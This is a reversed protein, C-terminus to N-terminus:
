EVGVHEIRSLCRHCCMRPVPKDVNLNHDVIDCREVFGSRVFMLLVGLRDRGIGNAYGWYEDKPNDEHLVADGTGILAERLSDHQLFKAVLCRLMVREKIDDWGERIKVRYGAMKADFPKVIARIWEREENDLTKQAQYYHETTRWVKGDLTIPARHFNSLWGYDTRRSFFFIDSM